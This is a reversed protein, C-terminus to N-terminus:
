LQGPPQFHSANVCSSITRPRLAGHGPVRLRRPKRPARAQRSTLSSLPRNGEQCQPPLGRLPRALCLGIHKNEM